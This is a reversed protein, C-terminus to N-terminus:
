GIKEATFWTAGTTDFGNLAKAKVSTSNAIDYAVALNYTLGTSHTVIAGVTVSVFGGTTAGATIRGNGSGFTDTGNDLRVSIGGIATGTSSVTVGATIKWTGTALLKSFVNTYTNITTSLNVDAALTTSAFQVPWITDNGGTSTRGVIAITSNPLRIFGQSAASSSWSVPGGFLTGNANADIWTQNNTSAGILTFDVSNAANRTILYTANPIRVSGATAPTAGVALYSLLGSFWWGTAVGTSPTVALGGSFINENTTAGVTIPSAAASTIAGTSLATSLGSATSFNSIYISTIGGSASSQGVTGIVTGAAQIVRLARGITYFGTADGTSVFTLGSSTPSTNTLFSGAGDARQDLIWGTNLAREAQAGMEAFGDSSQQTIALGGAM